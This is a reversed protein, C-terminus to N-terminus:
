RCFVSKLRHGIRDARCASRNRSYHGTRNTRNFRSQNRDVKRRKRVLNVAHELKEYNYGSSESVVVYDPTSDNMSFGANYLANTIGAEGIVFASGGPCQQALFAATALASTYFHDESINLGLRLMKEQLERPTRASSNTLFLFNKDNARLWEVFERVGPLLRNGHYIVGDMDCIFAKRSQLEQM